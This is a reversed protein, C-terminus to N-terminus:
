NKSHAKPPTWAEPVTVRRPESEDEVIDAKRWTGELENGILRANSLGALRLVQVGREKSERLLSEGLSPRLFEKAERAIWRGFFAGVLLAILIAWLIQSLTFLIPGTM